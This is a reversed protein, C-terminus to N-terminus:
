FRVIVLRKNVVGENSILSITYVGENLFSTDITTKGNITQSLVLRGHVDHLQMTQKASSVPQIVFSGSTPNPYVFVQNKSDTVEKIGTTATVVDINDLFLYSGYGNIASFKVLVNNDSSYASLDLYATRWQKNTPVFTGSLGTDAIAVTTLVHGGEYFIWNWTIGCDPSISVALTPTLQSVFKKKIM